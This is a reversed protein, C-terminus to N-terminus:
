ERRSATYSMRSTRTWRRAPTCPSRARSRTTTSRRVASRVKSWRAALQRPSAKLQRGAWLGTGSRTPFRRLIMRSRCPSPWRPSRRRRRASPRSPCSIRMRRARTSTCRGTTASSSTSTTSSSTSGDAGCSSGSVNPTGHDDPGREITEMLQDEELHWIYIAHTACTALVAAADETGDRDVHMRYARGHTPPVLTQFHEYHGRPLPSRPDNARFEDPHTHSVASEGVASTGIKPVTSRERADNNRWVELAADPRERNFAFFGRGAELHSYGQLGRLSFLPESTYRDVVSLGEAVLGAGIPGNMRSTTLLVDHEAVSKIRWAINPGPTIWGVRCRALSWARQLEYHSKVVYRWNIRQSQLGETAGPIVNPTSGARGNIYDAPQPTYLLTYMNNAIARRDFENLPYKGTAALADCADIDVREVGSSLALGRWIGSAHKDICDKWDHSVLEAALLDHVDLHSLVDVFIDHGLLALPDSTGMIRALVRM